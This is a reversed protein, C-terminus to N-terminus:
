SHACLNKSCSIAGQKNDDDDFFYAGMSSAKNRGDKDM